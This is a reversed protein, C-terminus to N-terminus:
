WADNRHVREEVVEDYRTWDDAEQANKLFPLSAFKGVQMLKLGEDSDYDPGCLTEWVILRIDCPVAHRFQDSDLGQTEHLDIVLDYDTTPTAPIVRASPTSGAKDRANLIRVLLAAMHSPDVCMSTPEGIEQDYVQQAAMVTLVLREALGDDLFHLGYRSPGIQVASRVGQYGPLNMHHTFGVTFTSLDRDLIDWDPLENGEYTASIGIYSYEVLKYKECKLTQEDYPTDTTHFGPSQQELHNRLIHFLWQERLEREQRARNGPNRIPQNIRLTSLAYLWSEDLEPLNPVPPVDHELVGDNWLLIFDYPRPETTIHAQALPHVEPPLSQVRKYPYPGMWALVDGYAHFRRREVLGRGNLAFVEWGSM